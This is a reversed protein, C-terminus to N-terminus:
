ETKELLNRVLQRDSFPTRVGAIEQWTEHGKGAILIVDDVHASKIAHAIAASRDPIVNVADRREFGALIHEIIALPDESRPNDSTLIIQDSNNEAIKGMLPRKSKDRDGGCGVVCILRGETINQLSTLAKELADPTHAYDVIIRAFGAKAFCEMRGAVADVNSLGELAQTFTIGSLCLASLSALLNGANFEGSLKSSLTGEGWPSTINLSLAGLATDTVYGYVHDNAEETSTKQRTSYSIVRLKGELENKLHQGYEDDINIVASRLSEFLFLQRKAEAYAEMTGHYDLHDQSLNTFIGIDFSVGAVRAEVLGHSSVEMVVNETG